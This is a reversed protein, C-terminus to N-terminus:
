RHMLLLNTMQVTELGENEWLSSSSQEGDGKGELISGAEAPIYFVCNALGLSVLLEFAVAPRNPTHAHTLPM